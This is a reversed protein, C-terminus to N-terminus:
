KLKYYIRIKVSENRSLDSEELPILVSISKEPKCFLMARKVLDGAASIRYIEACEFSIYKENTTEILLQLYRESPPYTTQVTFLGNDFQKYTVNGPQCIFEYENYYSKFPPCNDSPKDDPIEPDQKDDDENNESNYKLWEEYGRLVAAFMERDRNNTRKLLEHWKALDESRADAILLFQGTTILKGNEDVVVTDSKTTFDILKNTM